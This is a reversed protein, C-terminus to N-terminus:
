PLRHHHVLRNRVAELALTFGLVVLLVATLHLKGLMSLATLFSPLSVYVRSATIADVLVSGNTLIALNFCWFGCAAGQVEFYAGM